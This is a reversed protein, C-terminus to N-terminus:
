RHSADKSEKVFILVPSHVIQHMGLVGDRLQLGLESGITGPPSSLVRLHDPSSPAVGAGPSRDLVDIGEGRTARSEPALAEKVEDESKVPAAEQQMSPQATAVPAREEACGIVGCVLAGIWLIQKM